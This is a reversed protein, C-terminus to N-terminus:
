KFFYNGKDNNSEINIYSLSTPFYFLKSFYGNKYIKPAKEFHDNKMQIKRNMKFLDKKPLLNKKIETEITKKYKQNKKIEEIEKIITKMKYRKENKLKSFSDNLYDCMAMILKTNKFILKIKEKATLLHKGRKKLEKYDLNNFFEEFNPQYRNLLKNEDFDIYKDIFCNLSNFRNNKNEQNNENKILINKRKKIKPTKSNIFKNSYKIIKEMDFKNINKFNDFKTYWCSSTKYNQNNKHKFNLQYTDIKHNTFSNNTNSFAKSNEAKPIKSFSENFKINTFIPKIESNGNIKSICDNLHSSYDTNDTTYGFTKKQSKNITEFYYNIDTRIPSFLSNYKIKNNNIINFRFKNLTKGKYNNHFESKDVDPFIQKIKKRLSM